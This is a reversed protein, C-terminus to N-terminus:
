QPRIPISIILGATRDHLSTRDPVHCKLCHNSLTIPGAHRYVGAETQEFQRKGSKLAKVAATEFADQPKHDSNMAQGDVALWRLRIGKETELEGFVHSLVAAPLPLGEDERYYQHHVLQLTSHITEHLIEAQRRAEELPPLATDQGKGSVQAPQQDVGKGAREKGEHEKSSPVKSSRVKSASAENPAVKTPPEDGIITPPCGASIAVALALGCLSEKTTM